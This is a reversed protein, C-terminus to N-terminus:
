NQRYEKFTMTTSSVVIWRKYTSRSEQKRLFSLYVTLILIAIPPSLQAYMKLSSRM